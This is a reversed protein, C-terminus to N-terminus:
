FKQKSRYYRIDTTVSFFKGDFKLTLFKLVRYMKGKSGSNGGGFVEAGGIM